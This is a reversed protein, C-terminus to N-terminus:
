LYITYVVVGNVTKKTAQGTAISEDLLKRPIQAEFTKNIKMIEMAENLKVVVFPDLWPMEPHELVYQVYDPTLLLDVTIISKVINSPLKLALEPSKKWFHEIVEKATLLLDSLIDILTIVKDDGEYNQYMGTMEEFLKDIQEYSAIILLPMRRHITKIHKNIVTFAKIAGKTRLIVADRIKIGPRIVPNVNGHVIKYITPLTILDNANNMDRRALFREERTEAYLDRERWMYEFRRKIEIREMLGTDYNIESTNFVTIQTERREPLPAVIQHTMETYSNLIHM